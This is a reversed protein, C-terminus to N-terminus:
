TSSSLIKLRGREKRSAGRVRGEIRTLRDKFTASSQQATVAWGFEGKKPAQLGLHTLIKEIRASWRATPPPMVCLACGIPRPTLPRISIALRRGM